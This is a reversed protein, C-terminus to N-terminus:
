KINKIYKTQGSDFIRYFKNKRMIQDETLSPDEGLEILKIKTFSSRHYRKLNKEDIYWYSNNVRYKNFGLTKYLGGNSIDNSAFSVISEPNVDNIFQNLLKGAAGIVCTNLLSCFRSLEWENENKNKNGSCYKKHGFIMVSVLEDNYFLGYKIESSTNGQIHNQNLFPSSQKSDIKKVICKRAYIKRKYIGLKSLILSKLITPKLRIWDEWISILQIGKQECEIFKNKHYEKDKQFHWYLGNCEIAIKKSPIYIDIEKHDELISKDNSMYDVNYEDLINRVFLELTTGKSYNNQIPLLKTCLEVNQTKRNWYIEADIVFQKEKCKNCEPHHCKCTYTYNDGYSADIINDYKSTINHKLTEKSKQVIDKNQQAYEVGYRGLMTQKAKERNSYNEDGYRELKTQKSKERIEALQLTSKTGYRKLNTEIMKQINTFCPDGYKELKTQRAKEKIEVLQLTSKTGYRKLNTEIMKQTNSFCPDGYRELKTQKAKERNSYNEDGYRELKTQKKKEIVSPSNNFCKACCYKYYGKSPSIFKVPGGCYECLPNSDINNRYWYLKEPFSLSHPFNDMLYQYFEPYNKKIYTERNKSGIRPSPTDFKKYITM